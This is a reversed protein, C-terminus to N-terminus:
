YVTAVAVHKGEEDLHEEVPAPGKQAARKILSFEVVALTGYVVTFAILSILVTLGTVGPSVGDATKMLGFVIWPQRGMETFVWGVTMALLSLPFAWIAAKWVWKNKPLRGKRTLWLGAVAVLVHLM